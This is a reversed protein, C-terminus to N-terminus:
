GLFRAPVGCCGACGHSYFVPEPVEPAPPGPEPSPRYWPSRPAGLPVRGRPGAPHAADWTQQTYGNRVRMTYVAQDRHSKCFRANLHPGLDTFKDGCYPCLRFAGLKKKRREWTEKTYGNQLRVHLILEGRDTPCLTANRARGLDTFPENCWRCRRSM